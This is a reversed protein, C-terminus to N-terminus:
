ARNGLKALLTFPVDPGVLRARYVPKTIAVGVKWGTSYKPHLVLLDLFTALPNPSVM